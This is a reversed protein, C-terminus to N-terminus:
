EIVIKKTVSRGDNSNITIFYIGNKLNHNDITFTNTNLNNETILTRGTIDILVISSMMVQHSAAIHILSSAPNPYISVSNKLDINSLGVPASRTLNINFTDVAWLNSSGIRAKVTWKGSLTQNQNVNNAVLIDYLAKETVTLTTSSSVSSGLPTSFNGTSNSLLWTYNIAGLSPRGTNSIQSTFSVSATSDNHINLTSNNPLSLLRFPTLTDYAVPLNLDFQNYVRPTVFGVITDIYAKARAASMYPNTLMSLSDAVHGSAPVPFGNVNVSTIGNMVTHDWWEWPASEAPYSTYFPYLNKVGSTITMGRTSFPDSYTFSNIKNNIGLANAKPITTTAGSANTIVTVGTTPVVVNGIGIPAFPDSVTQLSVTPLSNSQLWSSDGLAGGYNFIMHINGSLNTEGGYNFIPNGGLGNWDGMIDVNVMPSLDASRLFKPLEMESRKDVAGLALAVYGGTGQGGVIIKSTDLKYIPANNRLFRVCNRVDQMARFTARLLDGTATDRITSAANWGMRYDVAVAVFGRKALRSCMEVITSDEKNGTTQKNIISPLYSGTHVLIVVPRKTATDGAPQYVDCKLGVTIIPRPDTPYLLNLSRNTDYEINATKTFSAFIESLYRQAFTQQYFIAFTSLLFIKLLQKKM